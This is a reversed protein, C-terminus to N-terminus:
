PPCAGFHARISPQNVRQLHDALKFNPMELSVDVHIIGGGFRATGLKPQAFQKQHCEDDRQHQAKASQQILEDAPLVPQGDGGQDQEQASNGDDLNENQHEKVADQPPRVLGVLYFLVPSLRKIWVKHCPRL